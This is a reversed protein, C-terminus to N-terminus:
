VACRALASAFTSYIRAERSIKELIEMSKTFGEVAKPLDRLKLDVLGLDSIAKARFLETGARPGAIAIAREILARASDLEGKRQLTNGLARLVEAVQMTDPKYLVEHAALSTRLLPEAFVHMGRQQYVIALELQLRALQQQERLSAPDTALSIARLYLDESEPFRSQRYTLDGLGGLLVAMTEDPVSNSREVVALALRLANEAEAFHALERYAFSLKVLALVRFSEQTGQADSSAVLRRAVKLAVENNGAATMADVQRVLGERELQSGPGQASVQSLTAM